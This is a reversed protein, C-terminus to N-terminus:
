KRAAEGIELEKDWVRVKRLNDAKEAVHFLLKDKARAPITLESTVGSPKKAFGEKDLM